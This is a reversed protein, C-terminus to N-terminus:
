LKSPNGPKDLFPRRLCLCGKRCAGTGENRAVLHTMHSEYLTAAACFVKVHIFNVNPDPNFRAILGCLLRWLLYGGILTRGRLCVPQISERCREDLM